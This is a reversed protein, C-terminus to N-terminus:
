LGLLHGANGVLIQEDGHSWPVASTRLGDEFKCHETRLEGAKGNCHDPCFLNFLCCGQLAPHQLSPKIVLRHARMPPPPIFLQCPFSVKYAFRSSRCRLATYESLRTSQSHHVRLATCESLRARTSPGPYVTSLFPTRVRGETRQWGQYNLLKDAAHSVM